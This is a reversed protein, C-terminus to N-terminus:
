SPVLRPVRACRECARSRSRSLGPLATSSGRPSRSRQRVPCVRPIGLASVMDNAGAIRMLCAAHASTSPLLPCLYAAVCRGHATTTSSVLRQISASSLQPLSRRGSLQAPSACAAQANAPEDTATAIRKPELSRSQSTGDLRPRVPTVSACSGCLEGIARLVLGRGFRLGAAPARGMQLEQAARTRRGCGAQLEVARPATPASGHSDRRMRARAACQPGVAQGPGTADPRTSAAQSAWPERSVPSGGGARRRRTM